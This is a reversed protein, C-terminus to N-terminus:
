RNRAQEVLRHKIEETLGEEGARAQAGVLVRAEDLTDRIKRRVVHAPLDILEKRLMDALDLLSKPVADLLSMNLMLPLSEETRRSLRARVPGVALYNLMFDPSIAPSAPPKESLRDVLERYIRFATGDLTLWWTKYGFASRREGRRIRRMLVGVYNEVDHSVLRNRTGLDTPALGLAVAKRDREDRAEHWIEGVMARMVPDAEDALHDLNSVEIGFMDALYDIIDDEPRADGCFTELWHEFGGPDRGSLWYCSLLFPERGYLKRQDLHARSYGKSRKIHSAIEEIVGDTVYLRSGSERVARLMSSHSRAPLDLLDEAFLPLAVTTDLWIDGDAFIKVIASQVDPTERMFAFLTYTDALSRLYRKVSEPPDIMLATLTAAVVRPEIGKTPNVTLDKYVTAEVDEFRLTAERDYIVVEAFAEGRDLLIRELVARTREVAITLLPDSLQLGDEQAVRVLMNHLETRLASDLMEMEALREAL